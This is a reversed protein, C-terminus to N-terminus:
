EEITTESADARPRFLRARVEPVFEGIIDFLNVDGVTKAWQEFKPTKDDAAKLSAWVVKLAATWNHVSYDFEFLIDDDSEELDSKRVTEKGFLDKLMDSGFEQEYVVLTWVSIVAEKEGQGFDVKM